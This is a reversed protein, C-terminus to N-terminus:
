NVLMVTGGKVINYIVVDNATGDGSNVGYGIHGVYGNGLDVRSGNVFTGTTSGANGNVLVFFKDTTQPQYNLGVQLTAGGLNVPGNAVIQTYNTPGNIVIRVTAGNTFTLSNAALTNMRGASAGNTVASGPLFIAGSNFTVAGVSGAGALTAGSNVLIGGTLTGDVTFTGADVVNTGLLTSKGKFWFNGSGVKHLSGTTGAVIQAFTGDFLTSSNDGGLTLVTNTLYIWGSGSLSGISPAASWFYVVGMQDQSVTTAPDSGGYYAGNVTLRAQRTTVGDGGGINNNGYLNLKGSIAVTVDGVGLSSNAAVRLSSSAYTCNFLTGGSYANNTGTIWLDGDYTGRVWTLMGQGAMSGALTFSSTASVAGRVAGGSVGLNIPRTNTISAASSWDIEGGDLYIPNSPAGLAVDSAVSLIGGVVAITGTLGLNSGSLSLTSSGNGGGGALTLGNTGFLNGALTLTNLVIQPVVVAETGFVINNFITGVGNYPLNAILGGSGITITHVSGNNTIAYAGGLRLAYVNADGTMVINSTINAIASSTLGQFTTGDPVAAYSAAANTFGITGRADTNNNYALFDPQGGYPTWNDGPVTVFYPAVMNCTVTPASSFVIREKGGLSGVASGNLQLVYPANNSRVAAGAVTLTNTATNTQKVRVVGFGNVAVVGIANTATVAVGDLQLAGGNLTLGAVPGGFPSGNTQAVGELVSYGNVTSGGGFDNAALLKVTGDGGGAYDRVAQAKGRGSRLGIVVPTTAGTLVNTASFTLSPPTLSCGLWNVDGAGLRYLGDSCPALMTGSFTGGLISGLYMKGNGLAAQSTVANFNTTDIALVGASDITLPPVINAGVALLGPSIDSGFVTVNVGNGVQANLRLVGSEQVWIPGTGLSSAASVNVVAACNEIVTGKSYTNGSGSITLLIYTEADAWGIERHARLALSNAATGPGDVINGDIFAGDAGQARGANVLIGRRGAVTQDVTVQGQFRGVAGAPSLTLRSGLVLPGTFLNSSNAQGYGLVNDDSGPVSNANVANALTYIAAGSTAAQYFAFGGGNLTIAGTGFSVVCNSAAGLPYSWRVTLNSSITTGGAHRPQIATNWVPAPANQNFSNGGQYFYMGGVGSISNTFYDSQYLASSARVYLDKDLVIPNYFTYGNGSLDLIARGSSGSLVHIPRYFLSSKVYLTANNTGSIDGLLIEENGAAPTGFYSGNSLVNGVVELVGANVITKGTYTNNSGGIVIANPGNAVIVSGTGTLIANINYLTAANYADTPYGPAFITDANLTYTNTYSPSSAGVNGVPRITRTGAGGQVTIGRNGGKGIRLEATLGAMSDGLVVPNANSGAASALNVSLAAASVDLVGGKVTTDGTYTNAANNNSFVGATVTVGGPGALAANLTGTGTSGYLLPGVLGGNTLVATGGLTWNLSGSVTLAGVQAGGNIVPQNTGALTDFTATDTAGNPFGSGGWNAANTWNGNAGTGIWTYQAQVAKALAVVAVGLALTARLGLYPSPRRGRRSLFTVAVARRPRRRGVWSIRSVTGATYLDM